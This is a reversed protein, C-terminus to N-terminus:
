LLPHFHQMEAPASKLGMHLRTFVYTQGDYMVGFHCQTSEALPIHFFGDRLDIKIAYRYGQASMQLAKGASPLACPRNPLLPTLNSLDYVLRAVTLSKPVAFLRYCAVPHGPRLVGATVFDRVAASM